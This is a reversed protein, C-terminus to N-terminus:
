QSPYNQLKFPIKNFVMIHGVPNIIYWDNPPLVPDVHMIGGGAYCSIGRFLPCTRPPSANSGPLNRAFRAEAVLTVPLSFDSAREKQFPLIDRTASKVSKKLKM